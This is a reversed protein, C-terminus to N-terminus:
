QGFSKGIRSEAANRRFTAFSIPKRFRNIRRYGTSQAKKDRSAKREGRIELGFGANDLVTHHPLLGFKQFVMSMETRRVELLEKNNKGTIDDDNIYVKGSTPENLRNLCRLLTSKGSGSLGMIVFFEEYIEFSAKNIGITCGTKELIKKSFGKDLLEQAKEKNKGFIITLDEVKLKVKRTNENKEM